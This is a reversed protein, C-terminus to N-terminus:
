SGHFAGREILLFARRFISPGADMEIERAIGNLRNLSFEDWGEFIGTDHLFRLRKEMGVAEHSHITKFYAERSMSLLQTKRVTVASASRPQNWILGLEGFAVGRGVTAVEIEEDAEEDIDCREGKKLAALLRLRKIRQAAETDAKKWIRISLLGSFVIYFRDPEDGQSIVRTDKHYTELQLEGWVNYLVKNPFKSLYQIKDSEEILLRKQRKTREHPAAALANDFILRQAAFTILGQSGDGGSEVSLEGASSKAQVMNWRRRAGSKKEGGADDERPAMNSPRAKKDGAPRVRKLYTVAAADYLGARRQVLARNKVAQNFVEVAAARMEGVRAALVAEHQQGAKSMMKPKGGNVGAAAAGKGGRGGKAGGGAAGPARAFDRPVGAHPGLDVVKTFDEIARREKNVRSYAVGRNFWAIACGPDAEVCRTYEAIAKRLYADSALEAKDKKRNAAAAAAEAAKHVATAAAMLSGHDTPGVTGRKPRKAGAAAGAPDGRRLSKRRVANREEKADAGRGWTEMERKEQSRIAMGVAFSGSRKLRGPPAAGGADENEAAKRKAAAAAARQKKVHFRAGFERSLRDLCVGKYFHAAIHPAEKDEAAVAQEYWKLAAHLDGKSLMRYNGKRVHADSASSGSPQVRPDSHRTDAHLTGDCAGKLGLLASTDGVNKKIKKWLKGAEAKRAKFNFASGLDAKPKVSGRRGVGKAKGTDPSTALAAEEKAKRARQLWPLKRNLKHGDKALLPVRAGMKVAQKQFVNMIEAKREEEATM